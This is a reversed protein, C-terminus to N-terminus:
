FVGAKGADFAQRWKRYGALEEDRVPSHGVHVQGEAAGPARNPVHGIKIKWKENGAAARADELSAFEDEGYAASVILLYDDETAVFNQGQINIFNGKRIEIRDVRLIKNVSFRGNARQSALLDGEKFSFQKYEAPFFNGAHITM